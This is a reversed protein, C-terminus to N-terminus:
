GPILMIIAGLISFGMVSWFSESKSRFITAYALSLVSIYLLSYLPHLMMGLLFPIIWVHIFAKLLQHYDYEFDISRESPHQVVPIIPLM